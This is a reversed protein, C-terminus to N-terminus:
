VRCNKLNDLGNICMMLQMSTFPKQLIDDMGASACSQRAAVEDNASIGVVPIRCLGNAAEHERYKRTAELGGMEPMEMDMLVVDYKNRNEILRDLGIRGNFAIEVVHGDNSLLKNIAKYVVMSDEVLLFVLKADSDKPSRSDIINRSRFFCM